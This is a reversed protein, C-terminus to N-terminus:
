PRPPAPFISACCRTRRPPGDRGPRGLGPCTPGARPFRRHRPVPAKGPRRHQAILSASALCICPVQLGWAAENLLPGAPGKNNTWASPVLESRPSPVPWPQVMPANSGSQTNPALTNSASHSPKRGLRRPRRAATHFFGSGGSIERVPAAAPRPQLSKCHFHGCAM